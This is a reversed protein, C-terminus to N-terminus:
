PRKEAKLRLGGHKWNKSTPVFNTPTRFRFTHRPLRSAFRTAIPNELWLSGLEILNTRKFTELRHITDHPLAGLTAKRINKSLLYLIL